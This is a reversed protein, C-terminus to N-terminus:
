RRDDSSEKRRMYEKLEYRKMRAENFLAHGRNPNNRKFAKESEKELRHIEDWMRQEHSQAKRSQNRIAAAAEERARNREERIARRLRSRQQIKQLRIYDEDDLICPDRACQIGKCVNEEQFACLCDRNPCFLFSGFQKVHESRRKEQEKEM